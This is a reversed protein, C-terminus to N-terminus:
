PSGERLVWGERHATAQGSGLTTLSGLTELECADGRVFVQAAALRHPYGAEPRVAVRKESVEDGLRSVRGEGPSAGVKPPSSGTAVEATM